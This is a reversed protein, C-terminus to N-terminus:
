KCVRSKTAAMTEDEKDQDDGATAKFGELESIQGDLNWIVISGDRAGSAVQPFTDSWALAYTPPADHGALIM